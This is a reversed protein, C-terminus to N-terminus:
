CLRDRWQHDRGILDSVTDFKSSRVVPAVAYSPAWSATLTAPRGYERSVGRINRSREAETIGSGLTVDREPASM